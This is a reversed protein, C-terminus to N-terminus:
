GVRKKNGKNGKARSKIADFEESFIANARHRRAAMEGPRDKLLGVVADAAAAAEKDRGKRIAAYTERLLKRTFNM